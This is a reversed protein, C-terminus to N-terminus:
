TTPNKKKREALYPDLSSKKLTWVLTAISITDHRQQDTRNNNSM